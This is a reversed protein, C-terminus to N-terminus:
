EDATKGSSDSRRAEASEAAGEKREVIIVKRDAVALQKQEYLKVAVPRSDVVPRPHKFFFM